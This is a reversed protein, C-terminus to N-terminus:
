VCVTWNILSLEYNMIQYTCSSDCTCRFSSSDCFAQSHFMFKVIVSISLSRNGFTWVQCIMCSDTEQDNSAAEEENVSTAHALYTKTKLQNSIAEESLGTSVNGIREGLALLDQVWIELPFLKCNVIAEFFETDLLECMYANTPFYLWYWNTYVQRM